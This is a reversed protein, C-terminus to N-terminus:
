LVVIFPSYSSMLTQLTGSKGTVLYAFNDLLAM